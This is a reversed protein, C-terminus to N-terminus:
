ETKNTSLKGNGLFKKDIVFAYEKLTEIKDHGSEIIIKPKIMNKEQVLEKITGFCGSKKGQSLYVGANKELKLHQQVQNKSIDIVLTDGVKISSDELLLNRGDFLNLQTKRGKLITKGIVKCPKLSQQEQPIAVLSFNGEADLLLRYHQKLSPIEIIDMIGLPFRPDRRVKKDVLVMGQHLIRRVERATRAFGLFDKILLSLNISRTLPHTGPNVRTIWKTEKRKIPWNKPSRTRSLHQAM